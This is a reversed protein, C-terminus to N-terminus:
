EALRVSNVLDASCDGGAEVRRAVVANGAGHAATAHRAHISRADTAVAAPPRTGPNRVNACTWDLETDLRM